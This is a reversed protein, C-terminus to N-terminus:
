FFLVRAHLYLQLQLAGSTEMKMKMKWICTLFEFSSHLKRQGCLAYALFCSLEGWLCKARLCSAGYFVRGLVVQGM